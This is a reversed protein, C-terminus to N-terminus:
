RKLASVFTKNAYSGLIQSKLQKCALNCLM